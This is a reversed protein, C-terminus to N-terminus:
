LSASHKNVGTLPDWNVVVIPLWDNEYQSKLPRNGQHGVMTTLEPLGKMPPKSSHNPNPHQVGSKHLPNMPFGGPGGINRQGLPVSEDRRTEQLEEAWSTASSRWELPNVMSGLLSPRWFSTGGFIAPPLRLSFFLYRLFCLLVLSACGRDM